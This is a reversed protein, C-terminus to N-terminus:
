ELSLEFAIGKLALSCTFSIAWSLFFVIVINLVPKYWGVHQM